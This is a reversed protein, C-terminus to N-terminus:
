ILRIIKILDSRYNYIMLRAKSNNSIAEEITEINSNGNGMEIMMTDNLMFGCHYIKSSSKGYFAIAGIKQLDDHYEDSLMNFLHQANGDFSPFLLGASKLIDIVLSASDLGELISKGKWRFPTHYYSIAYDYLIEDDTKM